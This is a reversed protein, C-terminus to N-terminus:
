PTDPVWFNSDEAKSCLTAYLKDFKGICNLIAQFKGYAMSDSFAAQNLWGPEEVSKGDQGIREFLPEKLPPNEVGDIMALHAALLYKRYKGAVIGAPDKTGQKVSWVSLANVEDITLSRLTFTLKGNFMSYDKTFRANNAVSDIFSAKDVSSVEVDDEKEGGEDPEPSVVSDKPLNESSFIDDKDSEVGDSQVEESNKDPDEKVPKQSGAGMVTM